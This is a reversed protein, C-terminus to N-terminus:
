KTFFADITQLSGNWAVLFLATYAVLFVLYGVIIAKVIGPIKGHAEALGDPYTDVPQTPEPLVDSEPIRGDAGKRFWGSSVTLWIVALFALGVMIGWVSGWLQQSYPM